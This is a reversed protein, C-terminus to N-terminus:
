VGCLLCERLALGLPNYRIWHQWDTHYERSISRGSAFWIKTAPILLDYGDIVADDEEVWYECRHAKFEDDSILQYALSHQYARLFAMQEVSILGLVKRVQAPEIVARCNCPYARDGWVGGGHCVICSAELATVPRDTM